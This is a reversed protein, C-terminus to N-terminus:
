RHIETQGVLLFADAPQHPVDHLLFDLRQRGVGILRALEGPSRQAGHGPQAQQPQVDRLRVAAGPRVMDARSNQHLLDAAAAAGGPQDHGRM